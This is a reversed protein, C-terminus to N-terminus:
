LTQGFGFNQGVPSFSYRVEASYKQAIVLKQCCMSCVGIEGFYLTTITYFAAACQTIRRQLSEQKMAASFLKVVCEHM